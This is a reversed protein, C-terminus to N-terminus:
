NNDSSNNPACHIQNFQEAQSLGYDIVLNAKLGGVLDGRTSYIDGRTCGCSSYSPESWAPEEDCCQWCLSGVEALLTWVGSCQM